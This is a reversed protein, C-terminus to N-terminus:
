HRTGAAQIFLWYMEFETLGAKVTLLSVGFLIFTSNTSM